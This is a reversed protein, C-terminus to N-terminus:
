AAPATRPRCRIVQRHLIRIAPLRTGGRITRSSRRAAESIPLGTADGLVDGPVRDSQDEHYRGAWEGALSVQASVRLPLLWTLLLCVCTLATTRDVRRM